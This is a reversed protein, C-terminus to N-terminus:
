VVRFGHALFVVSVSVLNVNRAHNVRMVNLTSWARLSGYGWAWWIMTTRPLEGAGVRRVGVDAAVQRFRRLAILLERRITPSGFVLRPQKITLIGEATAVWPSSGGRGGRCKRRNRARTRNDGGPLLQVLLNNEFLDVASCRVGRWNETIINQWTM